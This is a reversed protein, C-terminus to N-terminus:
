DGAKGQTKEKDVSTKERMEAFRLLPGSLAPANTAPAGRERERGSTERPALSVMNWDSGPELPPPTLTFTAIGCKRPLCDGLFAIKRIDSVLPVLEDLKIRCM